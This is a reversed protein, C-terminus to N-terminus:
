ASIRISDVIHSFLQSILLHTLILQVTFSRAYITTWDTLLKWQYTNSHDLSKAHTHKSVPVTVTLRMGLDMSSSFPRTEAMRAHTYNDGIQVHTRTPTPPFSTKTTVHNWRQCVHINNVGLELLTYVQTRSDRYRCDISAMQAPRTDHSFLTANNLLAPIWCLHASLIISRSPTRTAEPSPSGCCITLFVLM